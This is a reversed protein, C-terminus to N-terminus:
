NRRAFNFIKTENNYQICYLFDADEKALFERIKRRDERFLPEDKIFDNIRLDTIHFHPFARSCAIQINLPAKITKRYITKSM